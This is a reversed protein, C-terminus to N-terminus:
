KGQLGQCIATVCHKASARLLMKIIFCCQLMAIFYCQWIDKEIYAVFYCNTQKFIVRRLQTGCSMRPKKEYLFM